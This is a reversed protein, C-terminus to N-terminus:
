GVKRVKLSALFSVQEGSTFHQVTNGGGGSNSLEAVAVTEAFFLKFGHLEEEEEASRYLSLLKLCIFIQMTEAAAYM